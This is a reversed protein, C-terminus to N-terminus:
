HGEHAYLPYGNEDISGSATVAANNVLAAISGLQEDVTAFLRLIEEERGMDAKVAIARGGSRKIAEVVGLAAQESSSSRYNVAVAYGQEALRKATAAGIGRSAGTVLAVKTKCSTNSTMISAM